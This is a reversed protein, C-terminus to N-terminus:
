IPETRYEVTLSHTMRPPVTVANHAANASEVCVMNRWGEGVDSMPVGKEQWPNWVVTTRSGSKALRIRRRLGPDEIVCESETDVYVRDTESHFTVPGRQQKSAFNDVKDLYVGDELGLVRVQAVDAVQFYTHFAESIQFERDGTNTTTLTMRLTDGILLDLTLEAQHPWQTEAQASPLLRLTLRTAGHAEAGAAIVEWPLNRAYGHAPFSPQNTHMGFWPWCVPAGSHAPKGQVLAAKDSWWVVPLSTSRPRWSLLHAGQLTLRASAQPNDIEAVILGSADAVFNLQRSIGFQDNLDQVNM